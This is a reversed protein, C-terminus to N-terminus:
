ESIQLEMTKWMQQLNIITYKCPIGYREDYRLAKDIKNFNLRVGKKYLSINIIKMMQKLGKEGQIFSRM